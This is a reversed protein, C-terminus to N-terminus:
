IIESYRAKKESYMHKDVQDILDNFSISGDGKYQFVGMSFSYKIEENHANYVKYERNMRLREMLGSAKEKDKLLVCFEDGGYRFIQDQTRIIKKLQTVFDVIVKDGMIHGYNDNIKKFDDLDLFLLTFPRSKGMFDMLVDELYSRNYAETMGDMIFKRKFENLITQDLITGQIPIILLFVFVPGLFAHGVYAFNLILVILVYYYIYYLISIVNNEKFPNKGSNLYVALGTFIYNLINNFTVAIILTLVFPILNTSDPIFYIMFYSFLKALLINQAFNFVWKVDFVRDYEKKIWKLYCKTITIDIFILFYVFILPKYFIAFITVPGSLSMVMSHKYTSSRLNSTSAATILVVSLIDLAQLLADKTVADFIIVIALTILVIVYPKFLKSM